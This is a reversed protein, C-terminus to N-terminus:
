DHVVPQRLSRHSGAPATPAEHHTGALSREAREPRAVTTPSSVAVKAFTRAPRSRSRVRDPRRTPRHPAPPAAPESGPHPEGAGARTGAAATATERTMRCSCRSRAAPGSGATSPSRATTCTSSRAPSRSGSAAAAAARRTPGRAATSGISSGPSSPRMSGPERTPSTSGRATATAAVSVDVRGGHPTFKIANGVLNTVVQGIRQPDHRVRLPADPLTLHLDIGRRRASPQAQEVSSEVSLGSTTRGSISCCLGPTSSRSSSCTRPSGTSGSWSSGAAVRPVRGPRRPRRRGPGQAARQVDAAGRDADAARPSVDALFDRSRDRDRRIITVSEELREAM